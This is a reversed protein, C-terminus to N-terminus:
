MIPDVMRLGAVTLTCTLAADRRVTIMALV